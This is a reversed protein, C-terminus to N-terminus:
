PESEDKEDSIVFWKVRCSPFSIVIFATPYKSLFSSPNNVETLNYASKEGKNELIYFLFVHTVINM